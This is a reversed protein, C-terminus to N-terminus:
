ELYEQLMEGHTDWARTWDSQWEAIIRGVHSRSYEGPFWAEVVLDGDSDVYYRNATAVANMRNVVALFEEASTVEPDVATFYASLLYGGRFQMVRLNLEDPHSLFIADEQQGFVSYGLFEFHEAFGQLHESVTDPAASITSVLMMVVVIAALTGPTRTKMRNQKM